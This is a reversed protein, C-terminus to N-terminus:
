SIIFYCNNEEITELIDYVIFVYTRIEGIRLNFRFSDFFPSYLLGDPIQFLGGAFQKNVSIEFDSFCATRRNTM